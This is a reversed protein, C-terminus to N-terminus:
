APLTANVSNLTEENLRRAGVVLLISSGIGVVLFWVAYTLVLALFLDVQTSFVVFIINFFLALFIAINRIMLNEKLKHPTNRQYRCELVYALCKAVM